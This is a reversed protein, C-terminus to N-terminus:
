YKWPMKLGSDDDVVSIDACQYFASPAQLNKTIYTVQLVLGHKPISHPLQVSVLYLYLSPEGQDPVEALTKLSSETGVAVVFVGPSSANWHDLNKQFIVTINEGARVAIKSKEALRGGCPPKLLECDGAGPKNIGTINGRQTPTLLCLHATCVTLGALGVIFHLYACHACLWGESLTRDMFMEKPISLCTQHYWKKCSSCEIMKEKHNDPLQHDISELDKEERTRKRKRAQFMNETNEVNKHKRKKIESRGCVPPSSPLRINTVHQLVDSFAGTRILGTKMSTEIHSLSSPCENISDVSPRHEEINAEKTSTLTNEHDDPM